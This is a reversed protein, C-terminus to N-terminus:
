FFLNNRQKKVRAIKTIAVVYAATRYSCKQECLECMASSSVSHSFRMGPQTLHLARTSLRVLQQRTKQMQEFATCMTDELGSHCFDRETGGHTIEFITEEDLGEGGRGGEGRGGENAGVVGELARVIAEGRREDMRRALRGMRVHSLNKLWEFYSVVVGGSNLWFDPLIPIGRRELVAEASPTTPGNAAEALLKCQLLPANLIHIQQELAAPVLIDCPILLSQAPTTSTHAHAYDRISGKKEQYLKLDDVDLGHENYVSVDWEIVCVVKAGAKSLFKAAHYGVNGFGQVVVSKGALGPTLGAKECEEKQCLFERVGFYVGLGTAEVRGQIGGQEPPKGTVCALANINKRDLQTYTDAIWSMERASTGLDPAPVDIGPGIFNANYLELTYARVIKEVEGASYEAADVCIGGKAGGFPVDVLACKFTMLSALAMVEDAHVLRSMRIGGKTPLRHRSHHARYARIDTISGDKRKFPFNISLLADCSKINHLLDTGFPTLAAAHDYYKQISALFSDEALPVATPSAATPPPTSAPPITPIPTPKTAPHSPTSSHQTCPVCVKPTPLPPM